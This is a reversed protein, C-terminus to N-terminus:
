TRARLTENHLRRIVAAVREDLTAWDAAQDRIEFLVVDSPRLNKAVWNRYRRGSEYELKGPNWYDDRFRKGRRECRARMHREYLKWDCVAVFVPHPPCDLHTTYVSEILHVTGREAVCRAALQVKASTDPFEKRLLDLSWTKLFPYRTAYRAAATTKGVANCGVLSIMPM